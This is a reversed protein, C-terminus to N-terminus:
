MMRRSNNLIRKLGAENAPRAMRRVEVVAAGVSVM